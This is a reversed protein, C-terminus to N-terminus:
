ALYEEAYYAAVAGDSVATVIQRLAKARVDGAAFVGVIATRTSEDAAIYGYADLPLAGQLFGTAPKRGISVFIGDCAVESVTGTHVNQIAAGVVRGDTLFGNVTSNWLFEVNEAKILPEHYVRTARLTDRRHVVYVKKALQSLYLADSAASNGGGVVLVTKDKYFRGDCHACYHVGKGVLEREKEIGLERPSAGTSLIAAKSLITGSATEIQKVAKSFDVAIVETNKTKAGFREAGQQMKMGLTLGDIGKEFGPYNDIDGTLAMQGGAFNKEMLITNLGARSAYLAATYGAPGGGLIAVDYIHQM